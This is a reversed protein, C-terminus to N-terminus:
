SRRLACFMFACKIWFTKERDYTNILKSGGHTIQSKSIEPENNLTAWVISNGTTPVLRGVHM